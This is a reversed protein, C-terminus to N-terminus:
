GILRFRHREGARGRLHESNIEVFVEDLYPALPKLGVPLDTGCFILFKEVRV